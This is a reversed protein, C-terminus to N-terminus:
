LVLKLGMDKKNCYFKGGNTFNSNVRRLGTTVVHVVM